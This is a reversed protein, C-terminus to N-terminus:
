LENSFKFKNAGRTPSEAHRFLSFEPTTTDIRINAVLKKAFNRTSSGKIVAM